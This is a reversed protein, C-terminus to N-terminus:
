FSDPLLREGLVAEHLGSVGYVAVAAATHTLREGTTAWLQAVAFELINDHGHLMGAAEVVPVLRSGASSASASSSAFMVAPMVDRHAVSLVWGRDDRTPEDFVHLQPPALGVAGAKARLSRLVADALREGEYVFTGPLRWDCEVQDRVQMVSLPGRIRVTLVATNVEVSPRPYDSLRKGSFWPLLEPDSIACGACVM